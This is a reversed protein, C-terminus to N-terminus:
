ETAVNGAEKLEPKPMLMRVAWLLALLVGLVMLVRKVTIFPSKEAPTKDTSPETVEVSGAKDQSAEHSIEPETMEVREVPLLETLEAYEVANSNTVLDSEREAMHKEVYENVSKSMSSNGCQPCRYYKLGLNRGNKPPEGEAMLKGEGVQHVTSVTQCVPCPVFGRVPNPHKSM